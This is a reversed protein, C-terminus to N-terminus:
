KCANITFCFDRAWDQAAHKPSTSCKKGETEGEECECEEDKCSCVLCVCGEEEFKCGCTGDDRIPEGNECSVPLEECISVILDGAINCISENNPILHKCGRKALGSTTECGSSLANTFIKEVIANCGDCSLEPVCHGDCKTDRTCSGLCLEGTKCVKDCKEALGFYDNGIGPLNTAAFKSVMPGACSASYPSAMASRPCNPKEGVSAFGWVQTVDGEDCKAAKVYKGNVATLCQGYKANKIVGGKDLNFTWEKSVQQSDCGTTLVKYTPNGSSGGIEMSLCPKGFEKYANQIFSPKPANPQWWQVARDAALDARCKKVIVTGDATTEMCQQTACNVIERVHGDAMALSSLVPTVFFGVIPVLKKLHM